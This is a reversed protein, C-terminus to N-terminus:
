KGVDDSRRNRELINPSFFFPFQIGSLIDQLFIAASASEHDLALLFPCNSHAANDSCLSDAFTARWATGPKTLSFNGLQVDSV